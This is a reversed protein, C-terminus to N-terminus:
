AHPRLPQRAGVTTETAGAETAVDRAAMVRNRGAAKARYLAADAAAILAAADLGPFPRCAAVGVSATVIGVPGDANVVGDEHLIMRDRLAELARQAVAIAGETETGPLLLVFEEGGMRAAMDGERMPMAGLTEAVKRLCDDGRQHGYRDNFRKFHDVDFIALAVIGGGAQADRWLATLADDFARRNAIGTLADREALRALDRNAQHLSQERREVTHLMGAMAQRLVEFEAPLRHRPLAPAEGLRVSEATRTLLAMPHLIRAHAVWFAVALGGLAALVALAVVARFKADAPATVASALVSVVYITGADGAHAFGVLRLDDNGDPLTLTGELAALVADRIPGPPQPAGDPAPPHRVLRAGNADLVAVHGSYGSGGLDLVASMARTLEALDVLAALVRPPDPDTPDAVAMQMAVPLVFQGTIRSHIPAGVVVDRTRLADRFYSRDALSVGRGPGAQSCVVLGSQRLVAFGSVYPQQHTVQTARSFCQAPVSAWDGKFEAMMKLVNGTDEVAHSQMRAGYRAAQLLRAQAENQQAVRGSEAQHWLLGAMPAMGLLLVAAFVVGLRNPLRWLRASRSNTPQLPQAEPASVPFAM